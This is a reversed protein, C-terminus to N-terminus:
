AASYASIACRRPLEEPYEARLRDYAPQKGLRTSSPRRRPSRGITNPGTRRRPSAMLTLCHLRRSLAAEFAKHRFVGGQSAGTVAVRAGGATKALLFVGVMAYRSAPNRFKM